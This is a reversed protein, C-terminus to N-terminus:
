RLDDLSSLVRLDPVDYFHADYTLVAAQIRQACSAIILDQAPLTVGRRALEWAQRTAEEWIRNDTPVNMMVNMFGEVATLVPRHIIGRLVELRVMGCTALDFENARRLLERVPDQGERLLRIWVSSDVLAVAAM